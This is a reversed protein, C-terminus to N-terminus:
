VTHKWITKKIIELNELAVDIQASKVSCKVLNSVSKQTNLVNRSSEFECFKESM